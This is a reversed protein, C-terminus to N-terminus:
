AAACDNGAAIQMIEQKCTPTGDWRESGGVLVRVGCYAYWLLGDGLVVALHRPAMHTRQQQRRMLADVTAQM